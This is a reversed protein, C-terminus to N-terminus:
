LVAGALYVPRGHQKGEPITEWQEAQRGLRGEKACLVARGVNVDMIIRVIPVCARVRVCACLRMGM